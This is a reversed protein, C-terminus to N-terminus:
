FRTDKCGPGMHHEYGYGEGEGCAVAERLVAHGGGGGGGPPFSPPAPPVM